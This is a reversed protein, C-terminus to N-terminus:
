LKIVEDLIPMPPGIKSIKERVNLLVTIRFKCHLSYQLDVV